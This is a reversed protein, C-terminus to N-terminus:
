VAAVRVRHLDFDLEGRRAFGVAGDVVGGADLGGLVPFLGAGGRDARQQDAEAALRALDAIEQFPDANQLSRQCSSSASMSERRRGQGPMAPLPRFWGDAPWCRRAPA